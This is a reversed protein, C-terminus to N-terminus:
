LADCISVFMSSGIVTRVAVTSPSFTSYEGGTAARSGTTAHPVGFVESMHLGSIARSAALKATTAWVQRPDATRINRRVAQIDRPRRYM